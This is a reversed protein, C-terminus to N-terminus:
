RADESPGRCTTLRPDIRGPEVPKSSACGSTLRGVAHRGRIESALLTQDVPPRRTVGKGSDEEVAGVAGALFVGAARTSFSVIARALSTNDM